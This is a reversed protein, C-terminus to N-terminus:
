FRWIKGWQRICSVIKPFYNSFIVVHTEIQEVIKKQKIEWGLFFEALRKWLNVYINMYLVRYEQWTNIFAFPLTIGNCAQVSGSPGLLSLSGSKLVIPVHFHYSQWSYPVAAKLGWSINKTSMETLPQTLGLAMTRGSHNHRHFIVIVRDPISGAVM